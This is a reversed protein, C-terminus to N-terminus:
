EKGIIKKIENYDKWNTNPHAKRMAPPILVVKVALSDYNNTIPPFNPISDMVSGSIHNGIFTLTLISPITTIISGSQVTRGGQYYYEMDAGYNMINSSPLPFWIYSVPKFTVVDFSSPKGLFVEIGGTDTQSLYIGTGHNDSPLYTFWGGSNVWNQPNLVYTNVSINAVGNAGPKGEPGVAGDKKCASIFIILSFLPIFLKFAKM